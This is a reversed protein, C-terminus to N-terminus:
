EKVGLAYGHWYPSTWDRNVEEIDDPDFGADRMGQDLRDQEHPDLKQYVKYRILGHYQWVYYPLPDEQREWQEKFWAMAREEPEWIPPFLKDALDNYSEIKM